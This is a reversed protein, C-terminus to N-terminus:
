FFSPWSRHVVNVVHVTDYVATAVARSDDHRGFDNEKNVRGQNRLDGALRSRRRCTTSAMRTGNSRGLSTGIRERTHVGYSSSSTVALASAM